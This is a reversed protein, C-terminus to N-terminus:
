SLEGWGIITPTGGSNTVSYATQAPVVFTIQAHSANVVAIGSYVSAGHMNIFIASNGSTSYVNVLVLIPKASSNTYTVNLLRSATLNRWLQGVGLANTVFSATDATDATRSSDVRVGYTNAGNWGMLTPHTSSWPIQPNSRDIASSVPSLAKSADFITHGTGYNRWNLADVAGNVFKNSTITGDLIKANTISNDDVNRAVNNWLGGSYIWLKNNTADWVTPSRGVNTTPVGTPAGAIIPVYVFGNTSTTSLNNVGTFLNSNGDNSLANATILVFNQPLTYTNTADRRSLNTGASITPNGSVGDGNAVTIDNGSGTVVRSSHLDTGIRSIFGNANAGNLTNANTVTGTILNASFSGVSDRAVISSKDTPVPLTSSANLGDLLDSDLGSGTGDVTKLKTLVDAATYSAIPLKTILENNLNSFNNDLDLTSLPSGKALRLIITAM